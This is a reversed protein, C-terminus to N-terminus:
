SGGQAFSDWIKTFEDRGAVMNDISDVAIAEFEDFKPNGPPSAVDSRASYDGTAEVMANQGEASLLWDIFLRAANPHPADEMVAAPQTGMPVGEKPYIPLFPAQQKINYEWINRGYAMGALTVEGRLVADALPPPGPYTIPKNGAVRTWFDDGMLGKLVYYQTLQTGSASLEFGIKGAYKPDYLATWSDPAEAEPLVTPNFAMILSTIRGAAWYGPDVFGESFAEHEPTNFEALWGREKFRAFQTLDGTHWVDATKLGADREAQYKAEVQGAPGLVRESTDIFPYRENFRAM